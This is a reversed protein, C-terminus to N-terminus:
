PKVSCEREAQHLQDIIHHLIVSEASNLSYSGAAPPESRFLFYNLALYILRGGNVDRKKRGNMPTFTLMNENDVNNNNAQVNINNDNSNQNNDNNNNNNNDNSNSNSVLSAAISITSIVFNLFPFVQVPSKNSRCDLREETMPLDVFQGDDKPAREYVVFQRGQELHFYSPPQM